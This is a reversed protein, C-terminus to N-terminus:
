WLGERSKNGCEPDGQDCILVTKELGKSHKDPGLSFKFIPCKHKYEVCM